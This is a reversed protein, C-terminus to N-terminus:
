SASEDPSNHRALWLEGCGMGIAWVPVVAWAPVHGVVGFTELFGWVTGVALLLGLGFLGGIMRRHRQYEDTEEALYRALTWVFFLIPLSPLVAILWLTAGTPAAMHYITLAAGLLVVYALSWALMRRNYTRLAPSLSGSRAARNDASATLPLLLLAALAVFPLSRWGGLISRHELWAILALAAAFLAAWVWPRTGAFRKARHAGTM